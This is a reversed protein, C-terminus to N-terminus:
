DYHEHWGRTVQKGDNEKQKNEGKLMFHTVLADVQGYIPKNGAGLRDLQDQVSRPWNAKGTERFSPLGIKFLNTALEEARERSTRRPMVPLSAQKAEVVAPDIQVKEAEARLGIPNDFLGVGKRHLVSGRYWPVRIVDRNELMPGSAVGVPITGSSKPTVAPPKM